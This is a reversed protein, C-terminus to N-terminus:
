EEEETVKKRGRRRSAKKKKDPVVKNKLKLMLPFNPDRPTILPKKPIRKKVMAHPAMRKGAKVAALGSARDRLM